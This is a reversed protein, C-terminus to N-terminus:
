GELMATYMESLRDVKPVPLSQPSVSSCIIIESRTEGLLSHPRHEEAPITSRAGAVLGASGQISGTGIRAAQQLDPSGTVFSGPQWRALRDSSEHSVNRLVPHPVGTCAPGSRVHHIMGTHPSHADGAFDFYGFLFWFISPVCM